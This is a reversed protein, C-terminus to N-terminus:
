LRMHDKIAAWILAGIAYIICLALFIILTSRFREPLVAKDPIRPQVFSLLYRQKHQAELRAAELSTLASAYRKKALEQELILPQYKDILQTYDQGGNKSALRQREDQVQKELAEVKGKLIKVQPSDDQMFGKAEILQARVDALRNELGTVISLVASTEESPDISQTERRFVTLADSADRVRDEAKDVESRAFNLTDNVMRNSLRNVLAESLEMIVQSMKKALAPDFSKVELTSINASSETSVQIMERYYELFEERSADPSLRSMFDVDESAYHKRLDLRHDLEDLMDYSLIYDRVITADEGASETGIGPIVTDLFGSSFSAQESTRVAFKSESVYIDSAIFAYYIGSLFTPLAVVLIFFRLAAPKNAYWSHSSRMIKQM